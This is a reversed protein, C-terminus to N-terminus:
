LAVDDSGRIGKGELCERLANRARFLMVGLNNRSVELVNCVEAPEMGEVERLAFASRHREPLLELCRELFEMAQGAALEADPPRVPRIWRGDESFRSDMVTEIDEMANARASSRRREAVKRFLIGFLWTRVRARGDFENARKVFVLLTEQAVDRSDEPSLGAARAARFLPELNERAVTELAAPDRRQIAAIRERPERLATM